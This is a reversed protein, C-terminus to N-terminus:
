VPSPIKWLKPEGHQFPGFGPVTKMERYEQLTDFTLPEWLSAKSTSVETISYQQTLFTRDQPESKTQSIFSTRDDVSGSTSKLIDGSKTLYLPLKKKHKIQVSAENMPTHYRERSLSYPENLDNPSFGYVTLDFTSSERGLHNPSNRCLIFSAHHENQQAANRMLELKRRKKHASASFPRNNPTANWNADAQM